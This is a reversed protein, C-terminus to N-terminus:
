KSTYHENRFTALMRATTLHVLLSLYNALFSVIEFVEASKSLSHERLRVNLRTLSFDPNKRIIIQRYTLPLHSPLEQNAKWDISPPFFTIHWTEQGLQVPTEKLNKEFFCPLFTCLILTSANHTEFSIKLNATQIKLKIGNTARYINNM